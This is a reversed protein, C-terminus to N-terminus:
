AAITSGCCWPEQGGCGARSGTCWKTICPGAMSRIRIAVLAVERPAGHEPEELLAELRGAPGAVFLSEIRAHPM